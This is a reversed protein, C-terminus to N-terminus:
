LRDATKKQTRELKNIDDQAEPLIKVTYKM